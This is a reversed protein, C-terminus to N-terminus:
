KPLNYIFAVQVRNNNSNAQGVYDTHLRSYELGIRFLKSAVYQVNGFFLLNRSRMSASLDGDKPDDVGAGLNVDIHGCPSRLGIQGWGGVAAIETALTPNVGQLAGGLFAALNKGWFIEGKVFMWPFLPVLLDGNLSYTSFRGLAVGQDQRGYHGSFGVQGSRGDWKYHWGLRGQLQPYATAQGGDTYGGAASLDEGVNRTVALSSHIENEGVPLRYTGRLQPRRFGINGKGWLVLYNVTDAVLPSIVDSTQGALLSFRECDLQFYAHRIGPLYKTDSGGNTLDFEFRAKSDAKGVKPGYWWVGFRSQRAHVSHEASGIDGPSAFYPYDVNDTISDNFAMDLKIYGYPVLRTKAPVEAAVETETEVKPVVKTAEESLGTGSFGFSVILASISWYMKQRNM